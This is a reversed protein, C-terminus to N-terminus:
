YESGASGSLPLVARKKKFPDRSEVDPMDGVNVKVNEIVSEDDDDVEMPDNEEPRKIMREDDPFLWPHSEFDESTLPLKTKPHRRQAKCAEFYQQRKYYAPIMIALHKEAYKKGALQIFETKSLWDAQTIGKYAVRVYTDPQRQKAGARSVYGEARPMVVCPGIGILPNNKLGKKREKINFSIEKDQPMSEAGGPGLDTGKIVRFYEWKEEGIGADIIFRHFRPNDSISARTAVLPGYETEGNGYAFPEVRDNDLSMSDIDLDLLNEDTLQGPSSEQIPFQTQTRSTPAPAPAPDPNPTDDPAENTELATLTAKAPEESRLQEMLRELNEQVQDPNGKKWQDVMEVLIAMPVCNVDIGIGNAQNSNQLTRNHRKITTLHKDVVEAHEESLVSDDRVIEVLDYVPRSALEWANIQELTPREIQARLKQYLEKHQDSSELFNNFTTMATPSTVFSPSIGIDNSLEEMFILVGRLFEEIQHENLQMDEELQLAEQEFQLQQKRGKASKMQKLAEIRKEELHKQSPLENIQSLHKGLESISNYLRQAPFEYKNIMEQRTDKGNKKRNELGVEDRFRSEIEVLENEITENSAQPNREVFARREREKKQPWQAMFLEAAKKQGPTSIVSDIYKIIKRDATDIQTQHSKPIKTGATERWWSKVTPYLGQWIKEVEAPRKSPPARAKRAETYGRIGENEINLKTQRDKKARRAKTKARHERKADPDKYLEAKWRRKSEKRAQRSSENEDPDAESESDGSSAFPDEEEQKDRSRSSVSDGRSVSQVDGNHDETAEVEKQTAKGKGKGEIDSPVNEVTPEKAKAIAKVKENKSSKANNTTHIDGGRSSSPPYAIQTDM